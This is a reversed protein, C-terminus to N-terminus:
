NSYQLYVHKSTHLLYIRHKINISVTLMHTVFLIDFQVIPLKWAQILLFAVDTGSGHPV